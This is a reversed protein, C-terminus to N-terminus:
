DGGAAVPIFTMPIREAAIKRPDVPEVYYQIGTLLVRNKGRTAADLNTVKFYIRKDEVNWIETKALSPDLGIVRRSFSFAANRTAYKQNSQGVFVDVQVNDLPLCRMQIIRYDNGKLEEMETKATAAGATLSGFDKVFEPLPEYYTVKWVARPQLTERNDLEAIYEGILVIPQFSPHFAQYSM